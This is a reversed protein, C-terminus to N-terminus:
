IGSKLIKWKIEEFIIYGSPLILLILYAILGTYFISDHRALKITPFFEVATSGLIWSQGVILCLLLLLVECFLDSTRFRYIAYCSRGELGYGRSHMANATVISHELSVSTLASIMQAGNEIQEKKTKADLGKGVCSRAMCIEKLKKRYSPIFKLIMSLLLSVSPMTKGFVYLFRDSSVLVNYCTFWNAVTFFVLALIMGYLVAELTYARGGFYYFLVTDGRTNFFPNILSIAFFAPIFFGLKKRAKKEMLVAALFSCLVSVGLFYPNTLVMGWFLVMGFYTFTVIPNFHSIGQM